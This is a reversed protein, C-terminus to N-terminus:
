VEQLRAKFDSFTTVSTTDIKKDSEEKERRDFVFVFQEDQAAM